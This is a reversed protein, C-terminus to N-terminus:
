DSESIPPESGVVPNVLPEGFFGVENWFSLIPRAIKDPAELMAGAGHGNLERLTVSELDAYQAAVEDGNKRESGAPGRPWISLIPVDIDAILPRLDGAPGWTRYFEYAVSVPDSRSYVRLLETRAAEDPYDNKPFTMNYALSLYGPPALRSQNAFLGPPHTRRYAKFAISQLPWPFPVLDYLVLNHIAEPRAAAVDLAIHSGLTDGVLSVAGDRGDVLEMVLETARALVAGSWTCPRNGDSGPLTVLTARVNGNAVLRAVHRWARGSRGVDAIFLVRMLDGRGVNRTSLRCDRDPWDAGVIPLWRRVRKGVVTVEEPPVDGTDAVDPRGPQGLDIEPSADQVKPATGEASASREAVPAPTASAASVSPSSAPVTVCGAIFVALALIVAAVGSLGTPSLANMAM